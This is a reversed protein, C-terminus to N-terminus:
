GEERAFWFPDRHAVIWADIKKEIRTLADHFEERGTFFGLDEPNVLRAEALIKARLKPNESFREALEAILVESQKKIELTCCRIDEESIERM